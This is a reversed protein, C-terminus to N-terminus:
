ILSDYKPDFDKYTAVSKITVANNFTKWTYAVKARDKAFSLMYM